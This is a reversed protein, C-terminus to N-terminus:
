GPAEAICFHIETILNGQVKFLDVCTHVGKPPLNLRDSGVVFSSNSQSSHSEQYTYRRPTQLNDRLWHLKAIVAAKNGPGVISDGPNDYDYLVVNNDLLGTITNWDQPKNRRFAKYGQEILDEEQTM